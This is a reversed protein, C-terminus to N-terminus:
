NVVGHECKLIMILSVIVASLGVVCSERSQHISNHELFTHAHPGLTVVECSPLAGCCPHDLSTSHIIIMTRHFDFRILITELFPWDVTDYAKQIDIKFACRPPGIKRHYNHMLEQTILINDSIRRGLIFASQNDSVVEKIGEIIRNTLIKSVCKYIANCCSIPRYDNVRLPTSGKPIFALFTHNIEKLLKGNSFFDRVANCIDDGIIDWGKKFFLSTFGDPGPAKEDGKVNLNACEMDSGLFQEYHKVFVKPVMSGSVEVNDLNLITEIISRQNKSKITKHFYASNSDGVDLWEVKAKQKMFREEDLKAENFAQVYVGKEECASGPDISCSGYCPCYGCEVWLSEVGMLACVGMRLGIGAVFFKQASNLVDHYPTSAEIPKSTSPNEEMVMEEIESDYEEEKRDQTDVSGASTKKGKGSNIEPEVIVTCENLKEFLNKLKIGNDSGASSNKDQSSQTVTRNVPQYRFEKKQNNIRVGNFNGRQNTAVNKGKAKKNKVVTFGDDHVEETPVVLPKWEYEVQMKVLTHSVEEEEVNPIAMTITFADLKIPTGVQTAILSLDDESYAVVPVKHFKVWVPVRTVQDKSITMKPTWKTLILPVNRILWPGHKLAQELGKSTAFKFYFVGEDDGMIKEFGFKNWTNTVYNKVLPFAVRGVFFGVLTNEFKHKAANVTAM